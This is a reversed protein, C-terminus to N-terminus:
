KEGWVVKSFFGLDHRVNRVGNEGLIEEMPHAAYNKYFPEHFDKPFQDLAQDFEPADGKQLSDVLGHFGGPKLVRMAERIVREREKQPLEHFMFVSYVADVSESVLPLQAADAEIFDHRPFRKLQKQARKLYPASLDLAIIKAKPFALRVFKTARGTGAGLELFTLGEGNTDGFRDKLPQIILRRMADAAGVFLVEVQHEYLEASKESLYGDGQFHFNRRYYEPLENLLEKAEESFGHANKENRRRAMAIGEKFMAPFRLFHKVPNEPMLVSAPYVGREIRELDDNLLKMLRMRASKFLIPDDIPLRPRRRMIFLEIVPGVLSEAQYLATRAFIFSKLGRHVATKLDSGKLRERIMESAQAIQM